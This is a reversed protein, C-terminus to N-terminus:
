DFCQMLDMAIFAGDLKHLYLYDFFLTKVIAVKIARKGKVAYQSPPISGSALASTIM